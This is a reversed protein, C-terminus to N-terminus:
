FRVSYRKGSTLDQIGLSYRGVVQELTMSVQTSLTIPNWSPTAPDGTDLVECSPATGLTGLTLAGDSAVEYVVSQGDLSFHDAAAGSIRIEGLAGDGPRLNIAPTVHTDPTTGQCGFSVEAYTVPLPSFDGSSRTLTLASGAGESSDGGESCAPLPLALSLSVVVLGRVRHSNM